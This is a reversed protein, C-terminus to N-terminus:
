EAEAALSIREAGALKCEDMVDVLMRTTANEDSVIVVPRDRGRLRERVAARLSLLSVQRGDLHIAGGASIGIRISEAETPSVSTARPKDVDVGTEQVFSTTVLFFILLIFVMDILPSVNIVPDDADQEMLRRVGIM